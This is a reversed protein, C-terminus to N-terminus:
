CYGHRHCKRFDQIAKNIHELLQQASTPTADSRGAEDEVKDLNAELHAITERTDGRHWTHSCRSNEAQTKTNETSITHIRLRCRPNETSM